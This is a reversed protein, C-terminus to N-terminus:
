KLTEAVLPVSSVILHNCERCLKCNHSSHWQKIKYLVHKERFAVQSGGPTILLGDVFKDHNVFVNGSHQLPDTNDSSHFGSVSPNSSLASPQIYVYM